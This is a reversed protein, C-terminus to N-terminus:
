HSADAGAGINADLFQQMSRYFSSRTEPRSWGHGEEPYLIWTLPAHNAVLADRMATAHEVPVRHDVGGHALLLPRTIHAAQKLPSTAVFQAADKVKDGVMVPMGYDKWQDGFDSWWIDYMLNIDSVAAWAVGCRYLNGYRVLGMLTAYGGYSAGAICTRAPDALGKGAAWTTADAIDDQSALGWQKFGSELLRAGYGASGRYEPAVVLYGRSALFQFEPNWTWHWGRVQPGGHVLVVTPWPGKGHPKTVYVPIEHGDRAQIRVFDTDAMLRPEIKPRSRGIPILTDDGRDYLFFLPPQHDSQSVVLVRAACGCQAPDVTNVLGPLKADIRGQLAKLAPDFWVTGDGDALYHIGLVKGHVTDDVMSGRYDFGKLSVLASADPKFTVPDLTFLSTTRATDDGSRAVYIRGDAAAGLLSFAGPSDGMSAFRAREVWETGQHVLLTKVGANDAQAAILKGKGDFIWRDVHDPLKGEVPDHTVGTRTNLRLPTSGDIDVHVRASWSLPTNHVIHEVMVDDSGDELSRVFQHDPELARSKIGTGTGSTITDWTARILARLASGDRDVAFLGTGKQGDASSEEHWTSFVLRKSNVWHVASVDADDFSVAITAKSLDATDLVALQRRGAKNRVLIALASGDPSMVPESMEPANFFAEAPVAAPGGTADAAPAVAPTLLASGLLAALLTMAPSKMRHTGQSIRKFRKNHAHQDPATPMPERTGTKLGPACSPLADVRPRPAVVSALGTRMSRRLAPAGGSEGRPGSAVGPPGGTEVPGDTEFEEHAEWGGKKRHTADRAGCANQGLRAPRRRRAHCSPGRKAAEEVKRACPNSVGYSDSAYHGVEGFLRSCREGDDTLM